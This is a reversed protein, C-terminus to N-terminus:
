KGREERRGPCMRLCAVLERAEVSVFGSGRDEIGIGLILHDDIYGESMSNLPLSQSQSQSSSPPFLLHPQPRYSWSLSVTYTFYAWQHSKYLPQDPHPAQNQSQTQSQNFTREPAGLEGINTIDAEAKTDAPLNSTPSLLSDNNTDVDTSHDFSSLKKVDTATTRASSINSLKDEQNLNTSKDKLFDGDYDRVGTGDDHIDGSEYERANLEHALKGDEGDEKEEEEEEEEKSWGDVTENAFLIPYRSIGLMGYPPSSEWVIVYREYRSPFGLGNEFKRHILAIFVTNEARAKCDRDKRECLVLRVSNTAQHYTGTQQSIM